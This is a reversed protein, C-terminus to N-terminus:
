ESNDFSYIHNLFLPNSNSKNWYQIILNKINAKKVYEKLFDKMLLKAQDEENQQIINFFILNSYKILDLQRYEIM